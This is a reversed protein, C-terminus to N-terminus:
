ATSLVFEAGTASKTEFVSISKLDLSTLSSILFEVLFMETSNSVM